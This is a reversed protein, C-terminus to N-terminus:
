ITPASRLVKLFNGKANSYDVSHSRRNAELATIKGSDIGKNSSELVICFQLIVM